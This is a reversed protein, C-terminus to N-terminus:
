LIVEVYPKEAQVKYVKLTVVCSDEFPLAELITKALNDIDGFRKSTPKCRKAVIMTLNVAETEPRLNAFYARLERLHRKYKAPYGAGAHRNVRPRPMPKLEGEWVVRKM